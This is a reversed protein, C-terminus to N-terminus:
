KLKDELKKIQEALQDINLKLIIPKIKKINKIKEPRQQKTPKERKYFVDVNDMAKRVESESSIGAIAAILEALGIKSIYQNETPFLKADQLLRILLLKEFTTLKPDVPKSNNIQNEHEQIKNLTKIIFLGYWYKTFVKQISKYDYNLNKTYYENGDLIGCLENQDETFLEDYSINYQNLYKKIDNENTWDQPLKSITDRIYKLYDRLEEGTLSESNKEISYELAKFLEECVEYYYLPLYRHSPDQLWHVFDQLSKYKM